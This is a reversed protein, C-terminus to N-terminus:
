QTDVELFSVNEGNKCVINIINNINKKKMRNKIPDKSTM